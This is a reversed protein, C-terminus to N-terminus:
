LSAGRFAPGSQRAHNGAQQRDFWLTGPLSRPSCDRRGVAGPVTDSMTADARAREVSRQQTGMLGLQAVKIRNDTASVPLGMMTGMSLGWWSTPRASFELEVFDLMRRWDSLVADQGGGGHWM